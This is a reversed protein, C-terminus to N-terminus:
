AIREVLFPLITQQISSVKGEILGLLEGAVCRGVEEARYDVATLTPTLGVSFDRGDADLHQAPGNIM